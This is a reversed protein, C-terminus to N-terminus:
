WRQSDDEPSLPFPESPVGNIHAGNQLAPIARQLFGHPFVDPLSSADTLRQVAADSLEVRVAALNDQLQAVSRAGIIPSAVAQRRLLWALAVQAPTAGVEHAVARLEDILQLVPETLKDLLGQGRGAEATDKNERTYKGSLLGGELPSWPTVGMGLAEAMPLLEAEPTRELLSYKIQLAILPSWGRWEALTQARSAVWAPSDSFGIYCIKGARLLDDLARMTEEIPTHPDYFHVWYLDIRDTGLRRLSDEVARVMSLRHSGGANPDGRHTSITYKSALVVADRKSPTDLAEGIIVESHGKTYVNATDIFNGGADRYADIIQKSTAADCGWGWDEGFTMTGLCLPSVRLGSRGLTRYHNLEM